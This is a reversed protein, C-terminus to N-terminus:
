SYIDIIEQPANRFDVYMKADTNNVVGEVIIKENNQRLLAWSTYGEPNQSVPDVKIEFAKYYSNVIEGNSTVPVVGSNSGSTIIPIIYYESESDFVVNESVNEPNSIAYPAVKLGKQKAGEPLKYILPLIEGVVPPKQGTYHLYTVVRSEDGYQLTYSKGEENIPGFNFGESLATNFNPAGLVFKSTDLKFPEKVLTFGWEAYEAEIGELVPESVDEKPIDPVIEPQTNVDGEGGLEELNIGCASLIAGGIVFASGKLFERRDIEPVRDMTNKVVEVAEDMSLGERGKEMCLGSLLKFINFLLMSLFM